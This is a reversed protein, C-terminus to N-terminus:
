VGAPRRKRKEYAREIVEVTGDTIRYNALDRRPMWEARSVDDAPVLKGGAVRCLFDILVYHYEPKGGADRMIREFVEAIEVAKVILGTEERVERCVGEKLSEGVELVGGPLSWYGKLPEKGREVLLVRGRRFILAGM